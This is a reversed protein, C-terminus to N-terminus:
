NGDPQPRATADLQLNLKQPTLLGMAAALRFVAVRAAFDAELRNIQAAFLESEADLVNVASDLGAARLRKRADFVEAAINVANDLLQVRERATELDAYAQEVRERVARDVDDSRHRAEAFREAAQAGRAERAFGDFLSWSFEVVAKFDRRTGEVGDFDDEWDAVAVVDVRPFYDARAIIRAEAATDVDAAAIGLAPNAERAVAIAEDLGAPVVALPPIPELMTEVAPVEGFVERYAARSRELDGEFRVREQVANQLRAKAFLVDVSVGGGRQVREDELDLQTKIANERARALEILRADRLLAHYAIAGDLLLSQEVTVARLEARNRGLEAVDLRSEREFGDFLPQRLEASATYSDTEFSGLDRARRPSSDTVAYGGEGRLSLSPLYAGRAEDVAAEAERVRARAADLAPHEEIVRLLEAELRVVPTQARAASAAVGGCLGVVLATLVLRDTTRLHSAM